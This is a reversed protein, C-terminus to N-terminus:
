GAAVVVGDLLVDFTALRRGIRGRRGRPRAHDIVVAGLDLLEDVPGV